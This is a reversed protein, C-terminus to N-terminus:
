WLSQHIYILLALVVAKGILHAGQLVLSLESDDDGDRDFFLIRKSSIQPTLVHIAISGINSSPESSLNLLNEKM